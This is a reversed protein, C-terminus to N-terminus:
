TQAIYDVGGKYMYPKLKLAKECDKYYPFIKEIVTYFRKSHNFEVFHAYEHVIIYVAVTVPLASLCTNLTIKAKQRSCTGWASTMYRFVVEHPPVNFGEDVFKQRIVDTFEKYRRETELKYFAKIASDLKQSNEAYVTLVGDKVFAHTRASKYILVQLKEGLFYVGSQSQRAIAKELIQMKSALVEEIRYKPTKLPATIYILCDRRVRININKIPKLEVLYKIKRDNITVYGEM